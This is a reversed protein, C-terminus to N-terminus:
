QRAGREEERCNGGGAHRGLHSEETRTGRAYWSTPEALHVSDFDCLQHVAQGGTVQAQHLRAPSWACGARNICLRDVGTWVKLQRHEQERRPRRQWQMVVRVHGDKGFDQIARQAHAAVVPQLRRRARGAQIIGRALQLQLLLAAESGSACRRLGVGGHRAGVRHQGDLRGREDQSGVKGVHVRKFSGLRSGNQVQLHGRVVRCSPAIAVIELPHVHRHGLRLASGFLKADYGRWGFKTDRPLRILPWQRPYTSQRYATPAPTCAAYHM